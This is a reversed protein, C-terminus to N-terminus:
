VMTRRVKGTGRKVAAPLMTSFVMGLPCCYYASIWQALEILDETLSVSQPSDSCPGVDKETSCAAPNEPM